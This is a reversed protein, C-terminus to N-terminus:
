KRGVEDNMIRRETNLIIPLNRRGRRSRLMGSHVMKHYIEIEDRVPSTLKM